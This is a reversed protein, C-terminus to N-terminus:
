KESSEIARAMLRYIETNDLFGDVGESGPGAALLWVDGATHAASKREILAPQPFDVDTPQITEEVSRLPRGPEQILRMRTLTSRDAGPGSAWTFYFDGTLPNTGLLGDGKLRHPAPPGNFAFGGTNHDTTALLLINPGLHDRLWRITEDFELTEVIARRAQNLHAAKDPLGAEVILLFPKKEGKLLKVAHATMDKLRLARTGDAYFPFLDPYFVGLTPQAGLAPEAAFKEWDTFIRVPRKALGAETQQVAARQQGKYLVEPRSAEDFFWQSGGGLVLDVRSGLRDLIKPAIAEHQDRNGHEVLFAAPTAGTVSDDTIVATTWGAKKALDLISPAIEASEPAALGVVRNDAKIGRAMATAAAGSDTVLDSASFTRVIATRPLAELALRGDAGQSYNRAATILESSTGDAIVLVIGEPKQPSDCGALAALLVVGM